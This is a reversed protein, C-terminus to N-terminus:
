ADLSVTNAGDGPDSPTEGEYTGGRTTTIAVEDSILRLSLDRDALPTREQEGEAASTTSRLVSGASRLITTTM